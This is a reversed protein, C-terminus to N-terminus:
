FCLAKKFLKKIKKMRTKDREITQTNENRLIALITNLIIADGHTNVQYELLILGVREATNLLGKEIKTINEWSENTFAIDRYYKSSIICCAMFTLYENNIVRSAEKKLIVAKKKNLIMKYLKVATVFTQLPIETRTLVDILRATIATDGVLQYIYGDINSYLNKIDSYM